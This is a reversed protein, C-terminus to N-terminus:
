WVALIGDRGDAVVWWAVYQSQKPFAKQYQTSYVCIAAYSSDTTAPGKLLGLRAKYTPTLTMARLQGVTSSGAALIPARQGLNPCLPRARPALSHSSRLQDVPPPVAPTTTAATCATILFMTIVVLITLSAIRTRGTMM